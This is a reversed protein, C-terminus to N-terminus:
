AKKVKLAALHESMIKKMCPYCFARGLGYPCESRCNVPHALPEGRGIVSSSTKAGVAGMNIMIRYTNSMYDDGEPYSFAGQMVCLAKEHGM